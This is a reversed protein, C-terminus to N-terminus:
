LETKDIKGSAEVFWRESDFPKGALRAMIWEAQYTRPEPGNVASPVGGIGHRGDQYVIFQKPGALAKVFQESYELPCLEDSGGAAVLYPAKM